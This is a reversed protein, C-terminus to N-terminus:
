PVSWGKGINVQAWNVSTRGALTSTKKMRLDMPASRKSIMQEYRLLEEEAQEPFVINFLICIKLALRYKLYSIYFVPLSLLLDQNITVSSLSFLGTITLPYAQDPLFYLYIDAGTLTKESRWNFPLSNINNARGTGFYEDHGNERMAYRVTNLVFTLTEAKVLGPIGYKEQGIVANFTYSNTYFPIMGAEITKDALTENLLDLGDNLQSGSVTQFDRSVIGTTYYADSILKIVTYPM